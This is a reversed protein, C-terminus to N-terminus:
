AARLASPAATLIYREGTGGREFALLHGEVVDRVDVWSNGGPLYVPFRTIARIGSEVGGSPGSHEPFGVVTGPNVIVADLGAAVARAIEAEALYKSDFYALRLDQANYLASEDLVESPDHTIGIAVISSTYVLRRIGHELCARAVNGTGIVNVDHVLKRESNKYSVIAALHFVVEAGTIGQALAATDLVDGGAFRLRGGRFEAAFLNQAKDFDRVLATVEHGAAVLKKVLPVGIYGTAGTVFAKM